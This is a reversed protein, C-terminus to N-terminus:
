TSIRPMRITSRRSCAAMANPLPSISRMAPARGAAAALSVGEAIAALALAHVSEVGAVQTAGGDDGVMAVVRAGDAARLQVLRITM